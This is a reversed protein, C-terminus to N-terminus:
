SELPTIRLFKLKHLPIRACASVAAMVAACEECEQETVPWAGDAQRFPSFASELEKLWRIQACYLEHAQEISIAEFRIADGARCQAVLPLDTSIVTAIKTYGGTPQHDAMMIIPTGNGPVQVSGFSIGDSIINPGGVHTLVPGDLRYGMRDNQPTVQYDASLFTQISEPTFRKDQPGLIVRVRKQHSSFDEPPLSRGGLNGQLVPANLLLCDGTKLKRGDLGGLHSRILTSRSGLVPPLDLGGSFAIYARCGAKPAGFALRDGPKVAFARYMKQPQGNLTPSLDAGTIAVVSNQTFLLKPGMMTVELCAEPLPNGVLLNALQLSRLDMAGAPTMGFGQYGYRGGDQITTLLGGQEVQISM